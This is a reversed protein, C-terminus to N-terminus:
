DLGLPGRSQNSGIRRYVYVGRECDLCTRGAVAPGVRCIVHCVSCELDPLDPPLEFFRRDERLIEERVIDDMLPKNILNILRQASGPEPNSKRPHGTVVVPDRRLPPAPPRVPSGYHWTTLVRVPNAAFEELTRGDEPPLHMWLDFTSDDAVSIPPATHHVPYQPPPKPIYGMALQEFGNLSM